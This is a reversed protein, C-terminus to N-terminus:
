TGKIQVEGNAYVTKGGLMVSHLRGCVAMGAFPTWGCKTYLSTSGLVHRAELDVRIETEPQVPLGYIRRPAEYLLEVLRDMSLRGEHVANLMLPLTTELGPVGPPPNTGRKEALTHPAHDSAICDVM